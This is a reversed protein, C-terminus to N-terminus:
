RHEGKEKNEGGREQDDTQKGSTRSASLLYGFVSELETHAPSIKSSVIIGLTKM